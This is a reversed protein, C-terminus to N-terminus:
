SNSTEVKNRGNAKAKYLADDAKKFLSDMNDEDTLESVGFSCTLRDINSFANNEVVTRLKEAFDRAKNITAGPALIVFEEGGIRAIKDNQRRNDHILRALEILAQDGVQHGLTDNIRKFHDIDLLILSLSSHYRTAREIEETFCCNFKMRNPLGTLFDTAAQIQYTKREEETNTINTFSFIYKDKEPLSNFSIIFAKPNDQSHNLKNFQLIHDKDPNELVYQIWHFGKEVPYSIDDLRHFFDDFQRSDEKFAELSPYGLFSLATQNIYEVEKHNALIIFNPNLDLIYRIAETKAELDRKQFLNLACNYIAEVLIDTDTPKVVYKDLGMEIANLLFQTENYATTVIIPVNIDMEKIAKAMELGDMVPMRIDTIVIDPRFTKFAELGKEGNEDVYPTGVIRKLFISLQERIEQDDEIVLVGLTKLLGEKIIERSRNM